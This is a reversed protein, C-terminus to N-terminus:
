RAEAIFLPYGLLDNFRRRKGQYFDSQEDSMYRTRYLSKLRREEYKVAGLRLIKELPDDVIHRGLPEDFDPTDIRRNAAINAVAQLASCGSMWYTPAGKTKEWIAEILYLYTGTWDMSHTSLSPELDSVDPKSIWVTLQKLGAVPGAGSVPIDVRQAVFTEEVFEPIPILTAWGPSDKDILHRPARLPREFSIRETRILEERLAAICDFLTREPSSDETSAEYSQGFASLKLKQTRRSSKYQRIPLQSVYSEILEGNVYVYHEIVREAKREVILSLM